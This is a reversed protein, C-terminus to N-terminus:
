KYFKRQEKIINKVAEATKTLGQNYFEEALINACTFWHIVWIEYNEVTVINGSYTREAKDNIMKYLVASM